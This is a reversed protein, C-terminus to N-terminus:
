KIVRVKMPIDKVPRNAAGTSVAAILDIVHLGEIVQGFVTYDMDLVPTGGETKYFEVQAPSYYVSLGNQAKSNVYQQLQQPTHPSGHVVYFQSGSSEKTPNGPGGLRAAALAGKYHYAGQLIEAPINYGPGGQGLLKDAPAGKSDPDGGQAMFGQMVRHFLTGDYYGEEALKIFNDRHQPTFNFLEVKMVGFETEIEVIRKAAERLTISKVTKVEEGKQYATLTINYTGGYNFTHKPNEETSTTGDGFDWFYADANTSKNTFPIEVPAEGTKIDYEFNATQAPGCATIIIALAVILLISM